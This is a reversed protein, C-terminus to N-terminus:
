EVAVVYQLIRLPRGLQVGDVLGDFKLQLILRVPLRGQKHGGLFYQVPHTARGM